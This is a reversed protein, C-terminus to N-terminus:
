KGTMDIPCTLRVGTYADGNNSSGRVWLSCDRAESHYSGGRKERGTSIKSGGNPDVQVSTDDSIVGSSLGYRTTNWDMCSELVNGAVDYLGWRNPKKLGVPHTSAVGLENTSNYAYWGYEGLDAASAGCVWSDGSGARAAFEWQAETPLDFAVGTQTRLDKLVATAKANFTNTTNAECNDAYYDGRVAAIANWAAFYEVPRTQWNANTQDQSPNSGHFDVYQQQTLEYVGIYYDQTLKVQHWSTSDGGMRWVVDKAPIRRMALVHTKYLDNTVGFQVSEADVYFRKDQPRRLDVTFYAPPDDQSWARVTVTLSEAALSQSPIAKDPSWVIRRNGADVLRFVDGYACWLAEPAVPCGNTAIDLTIIARESLSYTVTVDHNDANQAVEVSSVEPVAWAVSGVICFVPLLSKM